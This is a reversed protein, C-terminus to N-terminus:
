MFYSISFVIGLALVLTGVCGLVISTIEIKKKDKGVMITPYSPNLWEVRIDIKSGVPYQDRVHKSTTKMAIGTQRKGGAVYSVIMDISTSIPNASDNTNYNDVYEEVTAEYMNDSKSYVKKADAIDSIIYAIIWIACALMFIGIILNTAKDGYMNYEHLAYFDAAVVCISTILISVPMAMKKKETGEIFTEKKIKGEIVDGAKYNKLTVDKIKNGSQTVLVRNYLTGKQEVSEITVKEIPLKNIKSNNLVMVFSFLLVIGSIVFLVIIPVLM